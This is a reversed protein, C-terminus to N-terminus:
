SAAARARPLLETLGGHQTFHRPWPATGKPQQACWVVYGRQGVSTGTAPDRLYRVLAEICEDESWSRVTRRLEDPVDLDPVPTAYPIKAGRPPSGDQVPLGRERRSARWVDILKAWPLPWRPCVLGNARTFTQIGGCTAQVGLEAYCVDLLGIFVTISDPAQPAVVAPLDALDLADAWSGCHSVIQNESPLLLQGGYVHREQDEALLRQREGRYEHPALTGQGLHGAVLRLAFRVGDETLWDITSEGRAIGLAHPRSGEDRRAIDVVKEWPLALCEAIWRATPVAEAVRVRARDFVRQSVHGEGPVEDLVRAM